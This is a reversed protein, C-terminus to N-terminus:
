QRISSIWILPIFSKGALQSPPRVKSRSRHGFIRFMEESWISTGTAPDIVWHGIHALYQAEKLLSESQKLKEGAKKIDTIDMVTVLCGQGDGSAKAEIHAYFPQGGENRLIVECSDKVRNELM